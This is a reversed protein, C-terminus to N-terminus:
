AMTKDSESVGYFFAKVYKLILKSFKQETSAKEQCFM